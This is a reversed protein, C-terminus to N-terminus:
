HSLPGFVGSYQVLKSKTENCYLEFIVIGFFSLISVSMPFCDM